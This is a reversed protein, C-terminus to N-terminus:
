PATWYELTIVAESIRTALKQMFARVHNFTSMAQLSDYFANLDAHSVHRRWQDNFTRPEQIADNGFRIQSERIEASPWMNRAANRLKNLGQTSGELTNLIKGWEQDGLPKDKFELNRDVALARLAVESARMLHFVAATGCDCALCNAAEKIDRAASPFTDSVSQGFFLNDSDVFGSLEEEVRLFVTGQFERQIAAMFGDLYGKAQSHDLLAPSGLM